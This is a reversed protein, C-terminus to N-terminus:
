SWAIPPKGVSARWQNLADRWEPKHKDISAQLTPVVKALWDYETRGFWRGMGGDPAHEARAYDAFLQDGIADFVEDGPYPPYTPPQPAPIGARLYLMESATLPEPRYWRNNERREKVSGGISAGPAGAGNVLDIVNARDNPDSNGCVADEAWGDVQTEGPSKTLWGVDAGSGSPNVDYAVLRVFLSAAKQDGARVKEFFGQAERAKAANVVRQLQESPVSM